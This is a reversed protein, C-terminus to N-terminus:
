EVQPAGSSSTGTTAKTKAKTKKERRTAGRQVAGRVKRSIVGLAEKIEADRM